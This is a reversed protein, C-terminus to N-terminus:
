ERLTSYVLLGFGFDQCPQTQESPVLSSAEKRRELKQHKKTIKPRDSCEELRQKKGTDRDKTKYPCLDTSKTGVRIRYSRTEVLEM